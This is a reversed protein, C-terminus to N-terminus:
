GVPTFDECAQDITEITQMFFDAYSPACVSAVDGRTGFLDIFERIRPAPEAGEYTTQDLPACIGNPQDSDGVLALAVIAEENGGKLAVLTDYWEAPSGQSDGELDDAHPGNDDEDTIITVVLIADERLFGDNCAAVDGQGALAQVMAEMPKEGLSSNTGVRAACDFADGVSPELNNFYRKGSAFECDRNSSDRGRPHTIGAGMIDECEEPASVGCVYDSSDTCLSRLACPYGCNCVGGNEAECTEAETCADPCGGYQWPDVDVVMVHFTGTGAPLREEISTVFNPVSEILNQQEDAMSGSNDIVFLFDVAECGADADPDVGTEPAPVDIKIGGGSSSDDSGSATDATGESTGGSNSASNSASDTASNGASTPVVPADDERSQDGCALLGFGLALVPLITTSRHTHM